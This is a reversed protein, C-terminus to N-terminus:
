VLSLERASTAVQVNSILVRTEFEFQWEDAKFGSLVRLLEGSKVIERTTVLEGDAFVRVIGYQGTALTNWSADDTDAENRDANQAPTNPPVTFYVKMAEFNKREPQQLIKSRWKCPQITPAADSFDYYYVNGNAIMLGIGTWPDTQLNDVNASLPSSLRNFGIRHGGPQPWITFSDSDNALEITAGTQAGIQFSFYTSALQIATLDTQPVLSQWKDRTIWTETINQAQGTGPSVMMLGNPSAYYVGYDTSLVSGRSVCPEASIAKTLVMQGPAVGQAIYPTGSTAAVVANGSVGIGVIPFETTLVYNPPWAHPRYPECFWLENGKFGVAMGNPMSLVAELGEPPPFWLASPLLSNLAVDSDPQTDTYGAVTVDQETLFFYSAGGGSDPVTRYIRLKTINRTVGMEDATPTFLEIQWTANSWGNIITAPSPPGEEGYASLWTYVYARAEIVAETTLDAFIQWNPKGSTPSNLFNPAGNSYTNSAEYGTGTSDNALQIAISTDTEIGIWYTVNASLGPPNIFPCETVEGATCGIVEDGEAQLEFPVGANDDYLVARFAATDSTTQPVFAVDDLSMAATPFIKILMITNGSPSDTAVSTANINGLQALNGGGSVSVGPACGPAPIGLYWPDQGAVIRDYTNYKPLASPSAFYYRGFSDNVVPSRMIDTFRDEFELWTADGTITNNFTQNAGGRFTTTTHGIDAVDYLWTMRANSTSESVPVTNYVAGFTVAVLKIVPSALEFTRSSLAADIIPNAVTGEGYTTGSTGTSTLAAFLNDASDAASAGLLVDYEAAVTSKFTYTEEGIKVTDGANANAVFVLFAQATAQTITPIRYVKKAASNLLARLLKPVRWGILAGSFLYSNLSDAAQGAPLLHPDWAPLMGAFQEIKLSAM